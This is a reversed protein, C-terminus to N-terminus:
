GVISGFQQKDIQQRPYSSFQLNETSTNLSSAGLGVGARISRRFRREAFWRNSAAECLLSPQYKMGKRNDNSYRPINVVQRAFTLFRTNCCRFPAVKKM